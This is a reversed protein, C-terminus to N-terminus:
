IGKIEEFVVKRLKKYPNFCKDQLITRLSKLALPIYPRFFELGRAKILFAFAGLIQMNRHLAVLPYQEQFGKPDLKVRDQIRGLYYALLEEQVGADLEVYPDLLLSALDYQLPGLRGGQFDLLGLGGEWVMINRSQFDRYLFYGGLAQAAQRALDEMEDRLEEDPIDLGLYDALFAFHFYGSEWALMFGQDYPANHTRALDFGKRGEVQILVLCDVVRQYTEILQRQNGKISMIETQLHCDGLDEMLFWGREINHHYIEPVPVGKGRLHQGIYLFSDNETVGRKDKPPHSSVMAVWSKGKGKIRYFLRGSGEGAIEEWALERASLYAEVFRILDPSPTAGRDDSKGPPM